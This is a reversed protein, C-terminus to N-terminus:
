IKLYDILQHDNVFNHREHFDIMKNFKLHSSPEILHYFNISESGVLVSFNLSGQESNKIKTKILKLIM